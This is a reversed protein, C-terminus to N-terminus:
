PCRAGKDLPRRKHKRASVPSEFALRPVQPPLGARKLLLVQGRRNRSEKLGALSCPYENGMIPPPEPPM